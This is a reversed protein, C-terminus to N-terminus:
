PTLEMATGYRATLECNQHDVINTDALELNFFSVEEATFFPGVHWTGVHLKVAVDGPVRFAKIDKPTPEDDHNTSPPAVAIFWEAGGVSALCQTVLSHRTIRDFGLGRNSLRMIYFRPTGRTLDLQADHDGFPMGDEGAAIVDGYPAFAEPTILAPILTQTDTM